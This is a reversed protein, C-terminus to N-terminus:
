YNDNDTSDQVRQPVCSYTVQSSYVNSEVELNSGSAPQVEIQLIHQPNLFIFSSPKSFNVSRIFQVGDPTAHQEITVSEAYITEPKEAGRYNITVTVSAM